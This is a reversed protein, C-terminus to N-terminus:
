GIIPVTAQPAQEEIIDPNGEVITPPLPKPEEAVKQAAIQAIQVPADQTRSYLFYLGLAGLTVMGAKSKILKIGQWMGLLALIKIVGDKNVDKLYPTLNNEEIFQQIEKSKAIMEAKTLTKDLSSSALETATTFLSIQDSIVQDQTKPQEIMVPVQGFHSMKGKM